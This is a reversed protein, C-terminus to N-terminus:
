IRAQGRGLRLVRSYHIFPNKWRSRCGLVADCWRKIAYFDSNPPFGWRMWDGVLITSIVWWSQGWIPMSFPQRCGQGNESGLCFRPHSLCMPRRFSQHSHNGKDTRRRFSSNAYSFLYVVAISTVGAEKLSRTAERVAGSMLHKLKMEKWGIRGPIERTLSQPAIHEPKDYFYDFPNGDRGQTQIEQVARYGATILMGVKAGRMELLANTTITTGHSFFEIEGPSTGKSIFNQVGNLVGLSPNKPTSSVKEM